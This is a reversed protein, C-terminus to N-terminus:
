YSFQERLIREDILGPTNRPPAVIRFIERLLEIKRPQDKPVLKQLTQVSDITGLPDHKARVEELAAAVAEAKESSETLVVTPTQYSQLVADVHTDWYAAGDTLGKRSSLQRFDYEIPQRMLRM